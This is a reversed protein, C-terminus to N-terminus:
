LGSSAGCEMAENVRIVMCSFSKDGSLLFQHPIGAGIHVVDARQLVRNVGGTIGAGRVEGAAVTRAREVSGGTVLTARGDLVILTHGHKKHAVAEDSRLLVMLLISYGPLKRIEESAAGESFRALKRLYAVRELLVPGTWHDGAAESREREPRAYADVFGDSFVLRELIEDKRLRSM